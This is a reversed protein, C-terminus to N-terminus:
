NLLQFLDDFIIILLLETLQVILAVKFQLTDCFVDELDYIINKM